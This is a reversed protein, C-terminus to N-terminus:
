TREQKRKPRVRQEGGVMDTRATAKRSHRLNGTLAKMRRANQRTRAMGYKEEHFQKGGTM